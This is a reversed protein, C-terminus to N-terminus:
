WREIWRAKMMTSAKRINGGKPLRRRISSQATSAAKRAAATALPQYRTQFRSAIKARAPNQFPVSMAIPM